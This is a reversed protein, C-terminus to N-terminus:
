RTPFPVGAPAHSLAHPRLSLGTSTVRDGHDIDCM